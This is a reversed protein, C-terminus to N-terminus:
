TVRRVNRMLLFLAGKEDPARYGGEAQLIYAAAATMEWGDQEDGPWKPDTLKGFGHTEGYDRVTGLCHKVPELIWPNDWAWLWTGSITSISGVVQM